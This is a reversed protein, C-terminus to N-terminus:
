KFGLEKLVEGYLKYDKEVKQKFERGSLFKIDVGLNSSIKLFDQNQVARQASDEYKKVIGADLGKPAILGAVTGADLELKLGVDKICPAEPYSPSRHLSILLLGRLTGAKIYPGQGGGIAAVDIHGGLLAPIVPGDGKFPVHVWEISREKAVAEMFVQGASNQGWSGYKIKRPNKKAYDWLEQINKWPADSRVVVMCPNTYVNALYTFDTLPDYGVKELHPSVILATHSVLVISYGDAKAKALLSLAVAGAAGPKNIPVVPKGLVEEVRPALARAMTDSPGGPPYPVIFDIPKTPFEAGWARELFLPMVVILFLLFAPKLIKRFM